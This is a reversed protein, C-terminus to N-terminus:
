LKQMQTDIDDVTHQSNWSHLQFPKNFKHILTCRNHASSEQRPYM